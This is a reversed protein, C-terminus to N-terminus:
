RKLTRYFDELETVTFDAVFDRKFAGIDAPTNQAGCFLCAKQGLKMNPSNNFAQASVTMSDSAALSARGVQNPFLPAGRSATAYTLSLNYSDGVYWVIDQQKGSRNEIRFEADLYGKNMETRTLSVDLGYHPQSLLTSTVLTAVQENSNNRNYFKVPNVLSLNGAPEFDQYHLGKSELDQMSKLAGHMKDSLGNPNAKYRTDELIDASSINHTIGSLVIPQENFISINLKPFHIDFYLISVTSAPFLKGQNISRFVMYSRDGSTNKVRSLASIVGWEPYNGAFCNNIEWEMVVADQHFFQTKDYAAYDQLNSFSAYGCGALYLQIPEPGFIDQYDGEFQFGALCEHERLLHGGPKAIGISPILLGSASLAGLAFPAQLASGLIKRRSYSKKKSNM